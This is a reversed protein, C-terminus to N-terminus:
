RAVEIRESLVTEGSGDCPHLVVDGNHRKMGPYYEKVFPTRCLPETPIFQIPKRRRLMLVCM